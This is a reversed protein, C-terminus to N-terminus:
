STLIDYIKNEFIQRVRYIYIGLSSLGIFNKFTPPWLNKNHGAFSSKNSLGDSIIENNIKCIYGEKMCVNNSYIHARQAISMCMPIYIYM